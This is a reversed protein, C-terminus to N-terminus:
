LLDTKCPLRCGKYATRKITSFFSENLKEDIIGTANKPEGIVIHYDKRDDSYGALTIFMDLHFIPQFEGKDAFISNYIITDGEKTIFNSSEALPVKEESGIYIVKKEEGFIKKFLDTIISKRKSPDKKGYSIPWNHNSEFLLSETKFYTDMGVLLFSKEILINGGQFILPVKNDIFNLEAIQQNLSIANAILHDNNAGEIKIGPAVKFQFPEILYINRQYHNSENLDGTFVVFPDQTWISYGSLSGDSIIQIKEFPFNTEDLLIEIERKLNEDGIASNNIEALLYFVTYHPLNILLDKIINRHLKDMKEYPYLLLIRQIRGDVSSVVEPNIPLNSDNCYIQGREFGKCSLRKKTAFSSLEIETLTKDTLYNPLDLYNELLKAETIRQEKLNSM